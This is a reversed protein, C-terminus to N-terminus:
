NKTLGRFKDIHEESFDDSEIYVWKSLNYTRTGKSPDAPFLNVEFKTATAAELNTIELLVPNM